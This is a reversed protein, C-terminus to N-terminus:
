IRGLTQQPGGHTEPCTMPEVPVIRMEQCIRVDIGVILGASKEASRMRGLRRRVARYGLMLALVSLLIATNLWRMDVWHSASFSRYLTWYWWSLAAYLLGFAVISMPNTALAGHARRRALGSLLYAFFVAPYGLLYTGIWADPDSSFEQISFTLYAYIVVVIVDLGLRLQETVRYKNRPNFNYPRAEMTVHWDIWSLVTTFYLTGLAISAVWHGNAIPHLVVERHLLLGQALVLGFFIQVLRVLQDSIRRDRDTM